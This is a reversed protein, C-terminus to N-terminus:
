SLQALAWPSSNHDTKTRGDDTFKIKLHCIEVPLSIRYDAM